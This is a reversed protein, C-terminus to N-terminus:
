FSDASPSPDLIPRLSFRNGQRKWGTSVAWVGQSMGRHTHTHSVRHQRVRQSEMSQLGGTEETWLIKWVLPFPMEKKRVWPNFGHSKHRRGQCASEKGSDSGPFAKKWTLLWVM